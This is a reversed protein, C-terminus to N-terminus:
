RRVVKFSWIRTAAKSGDNAKVEVTHKGFSLRNSPHILKDTAPDYSFDNSRGDVSLLEINGRALDTQADSVIAVILPTRDRTSAGPAPQLPTITPPPNDAVTWSRSDPSPDPHGAADIARVQFTHSGVSLGQYEKPPSCPEFSGGDLKCEFRYEPKNSVFEFRASDSLVTGSPASTIVTDINRFVQVRAQFGGSNDGTLPDNIGLSLLRADGQHIWQKNCGVLFKFLDTGSLTQLGGILSYEPAGPLPWDNRAPHDAWGDCSYEGGVFNPRMTGTATINVTDGDEIRVGTSSWSQNAPVQVTKDEVRVSDANAPRMPLGVGVALALLLATLATIALRALRIGSLAENTM